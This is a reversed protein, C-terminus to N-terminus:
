VIHRHSCVHGHSVGRLSRSGTRDKVQQMKKEAPYGKQSPKAQLPNLGPKSVEQGRFAVNCLGAVEAPAVAFLITCKALVEGSSRDCVSITYTCGAVREMLPCGKIVGTTEDMSIQGPLGPSVSFQM